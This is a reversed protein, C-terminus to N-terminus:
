LKLLENELDFIMNLDVSEVLEECFLNEMNKLGEGKSGFDHNLNM